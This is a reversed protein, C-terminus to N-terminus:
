NAGNTIFTDTLQKFLTYTEAELRTHAELVEHALRTRELEYRAEKVGLWALGASSLALALLGLFTSVLVTRYMGVFGSLVSAM